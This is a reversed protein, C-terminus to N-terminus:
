LAPLYASVRFVQIDGQWFKGVNRIQLRGWEAAAEEAEVDGELAGIMLGYAATLTDPNVEDPDLDLHVHWCAPKSQTGVRIINVEPTMARPYQDERRKDLLARRLIAPHVAETVGIGRRM